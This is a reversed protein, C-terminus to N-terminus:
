PEPRTSASPPASQHDIELDDGKGLGIVDGLAVTGGIEGAREDGVLEPRVGREGIQGVVTGNTEDEVGHVAGEGRRIHPVFEPVAREVVQEGDDADGDRRGVGV